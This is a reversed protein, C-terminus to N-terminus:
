WLDFKDVVGNIANGQDFHIGNDVLIGITCINLNETNPDRLICWPQGLNAM